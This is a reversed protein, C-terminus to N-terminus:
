EGLGFNTMFEGQEDFVYYEAGNYLGILPYNERANYPIYLILSQGNVMVLYNLVSLSGDHDYQIIEFTKDDFLVTIDLGNTKKDHVCLQFQGFCKLLKSENFFDRPIVRKHSM